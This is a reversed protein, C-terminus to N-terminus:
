LADEVVMLCAEPHGLDCLATGTAVLAGESRLAVGVPWRLGSLRLTTHSEGDTAIRRVAGNGHDAVSITDDAGVTIGTPWRLGIGRGTGDGDGGPPEGALTTVVGDPDIRRIANNGTDAVYCAGDAGVDLAAPRRFRACPGRGDGYDYISGAVTTVVGDPAIRRIRDNGTDAVYCAGDSAFAVDHPYRFRAETGPGDRYGSAGGAVVRISGDPAVACIRHESSDAVYLSGDPAIALGAPTLPTAGHGGLRRSGSPAIVPAATGDLAVHWIAASLSDSVWVTGDSGAAVGGPHGRFSFLADSCDVDSPEADGGTTRCQITETRSTEVLPAV